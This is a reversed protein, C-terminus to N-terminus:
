ATSIFYWYPSHTKTKVAIEMEGGSKQFENEKMERKKFEDELEVNFACHFLNNAKKGCHNVHQPLTSGFSGNGVNTKQYCM